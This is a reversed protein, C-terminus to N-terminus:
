VNIKGIFDVVTTADGLGAGLLRRRGRKLGRM